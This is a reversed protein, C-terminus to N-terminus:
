PEGVSWRYYRGVGSAATVCAALNKGDPSFAFPLALVEGEFLKLAFMEQATVANWFRLTGDEGSTVVTRGDPAFQACCVKKHTNHFRPLRGEPMDWFTVMGGRGGSVLTKGDPSFALSDVTNRGSNLLEGTGGSPWEWLQILGGEHGSALRTGDASMAMAGVSWHPHPLERVQTGTKVDWVHFPEKGAGGAILELRSERSFALAYQTDPRSAPLSARWLGRTVDWLWIPRAPTALALTQGDPSYALCSTTLPGDASQLPHEAFEEPLLTALEQETRVDWRSVSGDTCAASLTGSDPSFTMAVASHGKGPLWHRDGARKLDWLRVTRDASTSALWRDDPSFRVSWVRGTHGLFVQTSSDDGTVRVIGDSGASALLGGSFSYRVSEVPAQHKCIIEAGGAPNRLDILRVTRDVCGVALVDGSAAFSVSNIPTFKTPTLGASAVRLGFVLDVKQNAQGQAKLGGTEWIKVEGNRSCSALRKGDASFSLCEIRDGHAAIIKRQKWTKVDWLVIKGGADASALTQGDPSFECVVVGQHEPDPLSTLCEKSQLDWIRITTDDGCSALMKSEPSFCVWDVENGHGKLVAVAAGSEPDWLRVTRDESATAMIRGDPSYRACYVSGQHGRLIKCESHALSWLMHWEFGRLDDQGEAPIYRALLDRLRRQDGTERITRAAQMDAVYQHVRNAKEYKDARIEAEKKALDHHLSEQREASIWYAGITLGIVALALFVSGAM